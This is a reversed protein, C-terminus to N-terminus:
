PIPDHRYYSPVVVFSDSVVSFFPLMFAHYSKSDFFVLFFVTSHKVIGVPGISPQFHIRNQSFLSSTVNRSLMNSLKM